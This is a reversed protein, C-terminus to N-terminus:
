FGWKKHLLQKCPNSSSFYEKWEPSNRELLGNGYREKNCAEYSEQRRSALKSDVYGYIAFSIVLTVGIGVALVLVKPGMKSLLSNPNYFKQNRWYRVTVVLISVVIAIIVAALIYGFIPSFPAIPGAFYKYM